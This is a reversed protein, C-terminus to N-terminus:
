TMTQEFGKVLQTFTLETGANKVLMQAASCGNANYNKSYPNFFGHLWPTKILQCTSDQNESLEVIVKELNFHPEHSPFVLLSPISPTLQTHHRIQSPYFGIFQKFTVVTNLKKEGQNSDHNSQKNALARWMASAGASFALITINHETNSTSQDSQQVEDAHLAIDALTEQCMQTYKDHGCQEVFTNYVSEENELSATLNAYPEAAYPETSYPTLIKVFAYENLMAKSFAAIAPTKGFIDTVLLLHHM